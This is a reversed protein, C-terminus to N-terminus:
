QMIVTQKKKIKSNGNENNQIWGSLSIPKRILAMFDYKGLDERISSQEVVDTMEEGKYTLLHAPSELYMEVDIGEGISLIDFREQPIDINNLQIFLYNM